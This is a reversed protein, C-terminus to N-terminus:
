NGTETTNRKTPWVAKAWDTEYYGTAFWKNRLAYKQLPIYMTVGSYQLPDVRNDSRNNFVSYWHDTHAQSLFMTSFQANWTEFDEESLAAKMVGRMDYYDSYPNRYYYDWKFYNLVNSYDMNLLTEKYQELYPQTISAVYELKSCDVASLLIGYLQDTAYYNYYADTMGEVYGSDSFMPGIMQHYPAGEGPVEAPSAIIYRTCNRLQYLVEINQMFCADFLIFDVPGFNLLARRMDDISLQSGANAVTNLGNDYGFARRPKAGWSESHNADAEPQPPLWGSGHSWFVLRYNQSPYNGKIYQLVSDLVEYSCSNLDQEYTKVPTLSNFSENQSAATIDYIKPLGTNDTYLILHDTEGVNKMGGLMENIDKSMNGALSNEAAMYVIVVKEIQPNPEEEQEDNKCSVAVFVLLLLCLFFKLSAFVGTAANRLLPLSTM